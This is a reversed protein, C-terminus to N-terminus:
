LLVAEERRHGAKLSKCARPVCRDVIAVVFDSNRKEQLVTDASRGGGRSPHRALHLDLRVKSSVEVMLRALKLAWQTPLYDQAPTSAGQFATRCVVIHRM